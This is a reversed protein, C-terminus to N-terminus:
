ISSSCTEEAFRYRLAERSRLPSRWNHTAFLCLLLQDLIHLFIFIGLFHTKSGLITFFSWLIGGFKGYKQGVIEIEQTM